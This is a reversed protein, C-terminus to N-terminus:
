RRFIAARLAAIAAGRGEMLPRGGRALARRALAGLVAISRAQRAMPGRPAAADIGAAVLMARERDDSVKAALDALAWGQAAGRAAAFGSCAPEYDCAALLAAARGEAFSRAAAEALPPEALLYEWGDVLGALAAADHPWGQSILDLVADGRPRAQAPRILNERWWALRMQGLMPESTRAVIQSLRHDLALMGALAARHAAPCYALAIRSALPLEDPEPVAM